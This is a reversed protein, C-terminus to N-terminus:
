DPWGFWRKRKPLTDCKAAPPADTKRREADAIELAEKLRHDIASVAPLTIIQQTPEDRETQQALLKPTSIKKLRKLAKNIATGQKRVTDCNEAELAYHYM